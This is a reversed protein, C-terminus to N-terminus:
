LFNLILWLKILIVPFGLSDCLLVSVKQGEPNIVDLSENGRPCLSNENLMYVSIFLLVVYKM